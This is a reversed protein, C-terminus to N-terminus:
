LRYHYNYRGLLFLFTSHQSHSYQARNVDQSAKMIVYRIEVEKMELVKGFLDVLIRKSSGGAWAKLFSGTCSKRSRSVPKKDDQSRFFQDQSNRHFSGPCTRSQQQRNFFAESTSSHRGGALPKSRPDGRKLAKMEVANQSRKRKYVLEFM